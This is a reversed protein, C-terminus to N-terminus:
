TGCGQSVSKVNGRKKNRAVFRAASAFRYFSRALAVHLSSKDGGTILSVSICISAVFSSYTCIWFPFRPFHNWITKNRPQSGAITQGTIM